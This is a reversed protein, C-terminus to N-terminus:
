EDKNKIQRDLWLIYFLMICVQVASAIFLALGDLRTIHNVFDFCFHYIMGPLISRTIVLLQAAIIGFIIANMVQLAVMIISSGSIISVSHAIGFLLASLMITKNDDYICILKQFIVGRFYSEEAIAVMIAFFFLSGIYRSGIWDIGKTLLPIISLFMPIYYLVKKTEERSIDFTIGFTHLKMKDRYVFLLPFILSVAMFSGQVLFIGVADAKYVTVIIGSAVPFLLMLIMWLICRIIPKKLLM